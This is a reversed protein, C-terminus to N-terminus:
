RAPARSCRWRARRTSPRSSPPATRAATTVPRGPDAVLAAVASEVADTCRPLAPEHVAVSERLVDEVTAIMAGPDDLGLLERRLPAWPEAGVLRGRLM